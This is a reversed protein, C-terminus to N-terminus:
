KQREATQTGVTVLQSYFIKLCSSDMQKDKSAALFYIEQDTLGSHPFTADIPRPDLAKLFVALSLGPTLAPAVTGRLPLSEITSVCTSFSLSINM